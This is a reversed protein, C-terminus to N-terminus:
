PAANAAATLDALFSRIREANAGFDGRGIRSASRMDVRAGEADPRVRISVDDEFGLLPTRAVAEIRGTPGGGRAFATPGLVRWGREDVLGIALNAVEEPSLALRLPAIDPFGARQRAAQDAGITPSPAPNDGPGRDRLARDFRPPDDLDTSVDNLAPAGISRGAVYAPGALLAAALVIALLSRGAGTVGTRWIVALAVIALLAGFAALALGSVFAAFGATADVSGARLLLASYAAVCIAFAVLILAARALRSRRPAPERLDIMM